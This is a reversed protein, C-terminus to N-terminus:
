EEKFGPLAPDLELGLKRRDENSMVNNPKPNGGPNYIPRGNKQYYMDWSINDGFTKRREKRSGIGKHDTKPKKEM